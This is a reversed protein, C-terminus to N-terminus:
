QVVRVAEVYGYKEFYNYYQNTLLSKKVGDKSNAAHVM